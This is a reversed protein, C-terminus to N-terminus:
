WTEDWIIVDSKRYRSNFNDSISPAGAPENPQGPAIVDGPSAELLQTQQQLQVVLLTPKQYNKKM